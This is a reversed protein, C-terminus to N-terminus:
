FKIRPLIQLCFVKGAGSEGMLATLKGPAVFGSVRDLLLREGNDVPVTYRLNRWTFVDTMPAQTRIASLAQQDQRAQESYYRQLTNKENLEIESSANARRRRSRKFLVISAETASSTNRETFILLM